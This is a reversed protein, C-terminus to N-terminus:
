MVFNFYEFKGSFMLYFMVTWLKSLACYRSNHNIGCCMRPLNKPYIFDTIKQIDIINGYPLISKLWAYAVNGVCLIQYNGLSTIIETSATYERSGPIVDYVGLGHLVNRVYFNTRKETGLLERQPPDFTYHQVTRSECFYISLERVVYDDEALCVGEASVIVTAVM